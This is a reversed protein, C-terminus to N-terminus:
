QCPRSALCTFPVLGTLASTYAQGQTGDFHDASFGGTLTLRSTAKFVDQLGISTQIDGDRLVPEILPFPSVGPYIGHETHVDDKLFFSASFVNRALSRNTFETSFGGNHENYM